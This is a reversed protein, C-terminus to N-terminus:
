IYKRKKSAFINRDKSLGTMWYFGDEREEIIKNDMAIHIFYWGGQAHGLIYAAVIALMVGLIWAIVTLM